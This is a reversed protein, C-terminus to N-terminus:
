SKRQCRMRLNASATGTIAAGGAAEGAMAGNYLKGYETVEWVWTGGSPLTVQAGSLCDAYFVNGLINTSTRNIRAGVSAGPGLAADLQTKAKAGWDDVGGALTTTGGAPNVATHNTGSECAVTIQNGLIGPTKATLTMVAGVVASSVLPHVAAAWYKTGNNTRAVESIALSENALDEEKTAGKLVEGEVGPSATLAAVLTYKKGGITDGKTATAVDSATITATAAVPVGATDGLQNDVRAAEESLSGPLYVANTPTYIGLDVLELVKGLQDANSAFRLGIDFTTQYTQRIIGIAYIYGGMRVISLNDWGGGASDLFVVYTATPADVIKAWVIHPGGVITRRVFLSTASGAGTTRLNGSAATPASGNPATWGTTTWGGALTQYVATAGDPMRTRKTLFFAALATADKLSKVTPFLVDSTGTVLNAATAKFAAILAAKFNAWTIKKSAVGVTDAYHLVDADVPTDKATLGIIWAYLKGSIYTFWNAATAYKTSSDTSDSLSTKDADVITAKNTGGAILAGLATWIKAKINAWTTTKTVNSAETDVIAIKDADALADKNTAANIKAQIWTWINAFTWRTVVNSAASDIGALSDADIPTTKPTAGFIKAQIWTWISAFSFKTLVNSAASNIGGLTDADIPTTKEAVGHIAAGVNDSDTVDAGDEINLAARQAAATAAQTLTRGPDTELDLIDACAKIGAEGHNLDTAM